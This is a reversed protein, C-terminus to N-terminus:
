AARDNRVQKPENMGYRAEIGAVILKLGQRVLLVFWRLEDDRRECRDCM